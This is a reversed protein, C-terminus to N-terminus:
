SIYLFNYTNYNYKMIEKISIYNYCSIFSLWIGIKVLRVTFCLSLDLNIVKADPGRQGHNVDQM